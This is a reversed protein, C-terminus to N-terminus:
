EYLLYKERLQRYRGLAEESEKLVDIMPKGKAIANGVAATGTLRNMMEKRIQLSDPWLQKITELMMFGTRVPRFLNRDRVSVYVGGCLRNM